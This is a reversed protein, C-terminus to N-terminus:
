LAFDTYLQDTTQTHSATQSFWDTVAAACNQFVALIHLMNQGFHLKEAFSICESTEVYFVVVFFVKHIHKRLVGRVHKQKPKM